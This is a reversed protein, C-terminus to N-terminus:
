GCGPALELTGPMAERLDEDDAFFQTLAEADKSKLFVKIDKDKLFEVLEDDKGAEVAMQVVGVIFQGSVRKHNENKKQDSDGM